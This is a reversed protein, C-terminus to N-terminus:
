WTVSICLKICVYMYFVINNMNLYFIFEIAQLKVKEHLFPCEDM